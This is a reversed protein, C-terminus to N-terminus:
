VDDSLAIKLKVGSGQSACIGKGRSSYLKFTPTERNLFKSYFKPHFCARRSLDPLAGGQSSETKEDQNLKVRINCSCEVRPTPASPEVSPGAPYDHHWTTTKRQSIKLDPPLLHPHPMYKSCSRRSQRLDGLMSCCAAALVGATHWSLLSSGRSSPRRFRSPRCCCCCFARMSSFGM